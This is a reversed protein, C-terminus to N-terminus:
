PPGIRLLVTLSTAMILMTMKLVMSMFRGTSSIYRVFRAYYTCRQRHAMDHLDLSGLVSCISTVRFKNLLEHDNRCDKTQERPPTLRSLVFPISPAHALFICNSSGM